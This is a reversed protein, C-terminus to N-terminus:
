SAPWANKHPYVQGVYLLFREPLGLRQRAEALRAEDVVPAFGETVGHHVVALKSALEPMFTLMRRASDHSITIVREASRLYLPLAVQHYLRDLAYYDRPYAVWEAGHLMFVRPAAPALPISHKTSFVVDVRERRLALPVAVQDWTLKDPARVVINQARPHGFRQRGEESAFVLVYENSPDVRLLAETIRRAYVAAGGREAVNRLLLAIRM